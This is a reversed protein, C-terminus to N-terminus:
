NYAAKNTSIEFQTNKMMKRMKRHTDKFDTCEVLLLVDDMYGFADESNDQPINLLDASYFLYLIISLPDGQGIRYGGYKCCYNEPLKRQIQIGESVETCRQVGRGESKLYKGLM